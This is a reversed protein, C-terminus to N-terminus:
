NGIEHGDKRYSGALIKRAAQPWNYQKARQPSVGVREAYHKVERDTWLSVQEFDAIGHRSFAGAITQNVGQLLTLDDSGDLRRIRHGDATFQPRQASAEYSSTGTLSDTDSRVYVRPKETTTSPRSQNTEIQTLGSATGTHTTTTASDREYLRARLDELETSQQAIKTSDRICM